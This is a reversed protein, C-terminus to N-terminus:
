EARLAETPEVAAARRAPLFSASIASIALVTAVVVLTDADWPQTHFLLKSMLTATGIAALLGIGIGAAILRGAEALILRYVSGRQAGLAIRVGIERTRQSVSYAIVGYLGVVGLLLAVAAFGGSLWASSRRLWTSQLNHIRGEMTEAGVTLINPDVRHLTEELATLIATPTQATRVIVFFGADPSQNFPTYLAPQVDTDPPGENINDVIGVVEIPPQSADFRISKGLPNEGSFYKQAFIRNVIAVRPKSADDTEAFWRGAFLRARLTTFYSSSVERSNAENNEHRKPSGIIEFTSSGGALNALPIQHAVAVSEVGPLHRVEDVVQRALAIIQEDKRYRAPPAWMRVVALHDPQLGIETHLLKYFSKCLLGAGVLLVMATCLEVVVMNAGLHRWVTGAAGRGSATLGSRLNSLPARAIAILSLLLTCALGIAAAFLLVHANLGLGKLYPMTDLMDLPILQRLLQIAGYAAGIGLSTGALTLVVTETTLQRMLRACSAGLAGRVALERQRSQLRVLLLGSVNVCAILLLLAAGSLLLLLTPRLSGVVLETLPVVTAGRGEDADPYQKALQQAITSMDASAERLSVGDRLRGFALMGHEGREEPKPSFQLPMWFEAPGAPAFQFWQPLVGVIVIPTDNLIVSKGLVDQQKGFRKEWASYTLIVTRPAGATDEGPRFDRGLVPTIGLLRFFGAGVTAGETRQVGTATKLALTRQDFAEVSTFVHNLKKWDLYDLHSLHFRPGLPTSEFLGVLRSPNKYPLPTILVADVFAFIAVSACIGLTLVLIATLAFGPNRVLQRSTYSVDSWISALLPVLDMNVVREKTATRNGFRLLADRRADEPTMGAALNDEMRMEIHSALELDIERDVRSRSLLNWARRLLPM